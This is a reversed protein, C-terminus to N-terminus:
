IFRASFYAPKRWPACSKEARSRDPLQPCYVGLKRECVDAYDYWGFLVSYEKLAAMAACFKKREWKRIRCDALRYPTGNEEEKWLERCAVNYERMCQELHEGCDMVRCHFHFLSFGPLQLWNAVSALSMPLTTSTMWLM